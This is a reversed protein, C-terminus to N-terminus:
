DNTLVHLHLSATQMANRMQYEKPVLFLIVEAHLNLSLYGYAYWVVSFMTRIGLDVLSKPNSSVCVCVCFCHWIFNILFISFLLFFIINKQSFLKRSRTTPPSKKFQSRVVVAFRLLFFCFFQVKFSKHVSNLLTPPLDEGECVCVRVSRTHNSFITNLNFKLSHAFTRHM